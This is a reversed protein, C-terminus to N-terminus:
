AARARRAVTRGVAQALAIQFEVAFRQEVTRTVIEAFRFRPRYTPPRVFALVPVTDANDRKYIGPPLHRTRLDGPVAAFYTERRRKGRGKGKGRNQTPDSSARLASLIKTIQGRNMNGYGDLDAGQGPVAFMGKPMRAANMLAREFRKPRRPGGEVQPLLYKAAPTGKGAFERFGVLAVPDQKTAPKVYVSNLTFRTPRDFIVPMEAQLEERAARATRTLAVVAAFEADRGFRRIAEQVPRPDVRAVPM